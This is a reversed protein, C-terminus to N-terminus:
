CYGYGTRGAAKATFILENDPFGEEIRASIQYTGPKSGLTLTTRALGSSDTISLLHSLRADNEQRSPVILRFAVEIGPIPRDSADRVVVELPSALPKGCIGTVELPSSSGPSLTWPPLGLEKQVILSDQADLPAALLLLCISHILLRSM